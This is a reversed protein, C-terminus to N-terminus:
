THEAVLVEPEVQPGGPTGLPVNVRQRRNYEQIPMIYSGGGTKRTSPEPDTGFCGPGHDRTHVPGVIFM